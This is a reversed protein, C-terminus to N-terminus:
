SYIKRLQNIKELVIGNDILRKALNIADMLSDAKKAIYLSLSSNLVIVDYYAGKIKNSFVNELLEACHKENECKIEDESATKLGVLDPTLIYTFIKNKWAEAVFTEGSITAYPANNWSLVISNSNNLYLCIQAYKEVIDKSNVGLVQNKAKYPNLMKETISFINFFPLKKSFEKCYKYYTEDKSLYVYGFNTKEFNDVFDTNNEQPKIGLNRLIEFTNNKDLSSNFSYKLAGLDASSCILDVALPINIISNFENFTINEILNENDLNLNIPKISESAAQISASIEIANPNKSHLATAFSSILAETALGSTIEDFVEKIEFDSLDQGNSLKNIADKIMFVIYWIILIKLLYIKSISAFYIHKNNSLILVTCM